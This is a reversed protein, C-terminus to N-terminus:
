YSRVMPRNVFASWNKNLNIEPFKHQFRRFHQLAKQTDSADHICQLVSFLDLNSKINEPMKDAHAQSLPLIGGAFDMLDINTTDLLWGVACHQGQGTGYVCANDKECYSRKGQMVLKEGIYDVQQQLTMKDAHIKLM